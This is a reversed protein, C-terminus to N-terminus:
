DHATNTNLYKFFQQETKAEEVCMNLFPPLKAREAPIDWITEVLRVESNTNPLKLYNQTKENPRKHLSRQKKENTNSIACALPSYVPFLSL